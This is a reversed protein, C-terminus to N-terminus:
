PWIREKQKRRRYSKSVKQLVKKSDKRHKNQYYKTSAQRAM